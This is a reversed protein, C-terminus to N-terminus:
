DGGRANYNAQMAGDHAAQAAAIARAAEALYAAREAHAAARDRLPMAGAGLVKTCAEVAELVHQECRDRPTIADQM